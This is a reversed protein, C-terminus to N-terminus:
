WCQVLLLTRHCLVRRWTTKGQHATGDGWGETSILTKRGMVCRALSSLWCSLWRSPSWANNMLVTASHLGGPCAVPWPPARHACAATTGTRETSDQGEQGEQHHGARVQNMM